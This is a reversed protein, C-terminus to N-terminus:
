LINKDQFLNCTTCAIKFAIFLQWRNFPISVLSMCHQWRNIAIQVLFVSLPRFPCVAAVTFNDGPPTYYQIMISISNNIPVMLNHFISDMHKPSIFLTPVCLPPSTLFPKSFIFTTRAYILNSIHM